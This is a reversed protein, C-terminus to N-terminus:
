LEGRQYPLRDLREGVGASRQRAQTLRNMERQRREVLIAALYDEPGTGPPPPPAVNAAIETALAAAMSARSAPSM